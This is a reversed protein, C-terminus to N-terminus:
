PGSTRSTSCKLLEYYSKIERESLELRKAMVSLNDDTTDPEDRKTKKIYHIRKRNVRPLVKSVFQYYQQKTEFVGHLWNTTNNIVLALAPSYMSIWRNLMYTNFNSEEDMNQLSNGRKTFLIDNLYDFITM